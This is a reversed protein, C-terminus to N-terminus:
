SSTRQSPHPECPQQPIPHSVRQPSFLGFPEGVGHSPEKTHTTFFFLKDSSALAAMTGIQNWGTGIISIVM